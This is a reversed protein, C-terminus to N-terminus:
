HSAIGHSKGGFLVTYSYKAAHRSFWFPKSTCGIRQIMSRVFAKRDRNRRLAFSMSFVVAEAVAM